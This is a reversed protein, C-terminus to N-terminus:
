EMHVFVCVCVCVCLLNWHRYKIPDINEGWPKSIISRVHTVYPFGKTVLKRNILIPLSFYSNLLSSPRPTSTPTPQPSPHLSSFHQLLSSRVENVGRDPRPALNNVSVCVTVHRKCVANRACAAEMPEKKAKEAVTECALVCRYSIGGQAWGLFTRSKFGPHRIELYRRGAVKTTYVWNLVFM